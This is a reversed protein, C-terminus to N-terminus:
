GVRNASGSGGGGRGRAEAAVATAQNVVWSLVSSIDDKEDARKAENEETAEGLGSRDQESMLMPPQSAAAPATSENLPNANVMAQYYSPELHETIAAGTHVFAGWVLM